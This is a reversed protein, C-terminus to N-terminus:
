RQDADGAGQEGRERGGARGRVATVQWLVGWGAMMSVLAAARRASDVAAAPWHRPVVERGGPAGSRGGSVVCGTSLQVVAVREGRGWGVAWLWRAGSRWGQRAKLFVRARQVARFPSAAPQRVSPPARLKEGRARTPRPPAEAEARGAAPLPLPSSCSASPTSTSPSTPAASRSLPSSRSVSRSATSASASSATRWAKAMSPPTPESCSPASSLTVSHLSPTM